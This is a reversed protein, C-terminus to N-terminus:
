KGSQRERRGRRLGMFPQTSGMEAMATTTAIGGIVEEAIEEKVLRSRKQEAVVATPPTTRRKKMVSVMRDEAHDRCYEAKGGAQGYSPMKTCGPHACKRPM